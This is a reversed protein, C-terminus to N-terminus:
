QTLALASIIITDIFGSIADLFEASAFNRKLGTCYNGPGSIFLPFVGNLLGKIKCGGALDEM